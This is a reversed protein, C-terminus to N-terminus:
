LELQMGIEIVRDVPMSFYSLTTAQNRSLFAFLRRPISLPGHAHRLRLADRGIVYTIHEFDCVMGMIACAELVAPVNPTEAYGFRAIVRFFGGGLETEALRRKPEVFPIDLMQITLLVVQEHLVSNREFSHVLTPPLGDTSATLFVATGAVRHASRVDERALFADVPRSKAAIRMALTRRGWRWVMALAFVAGGVSLPVWGGDVIKSINAGLFSLDIAFFAGALLCSVALPVRWVKWMVFFFGITTATMTGNVSLGYAGALKDSSGFGIVLAMCGIMLATNVIPAYIQGTEENSTHEITLRPLLGLNIGQRALSFAGSILAQSAIVTAATALIVLPIRLVDPAM